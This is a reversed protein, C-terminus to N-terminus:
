IVNEDTFANFFIPLYIIINETFISIFAIICSIIWIIKLVNVNELSQSYSCLPLALEFSM